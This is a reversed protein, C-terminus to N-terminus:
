VRVVIEGARFHANWPRRIKRDKERVTKSAIANAAIASHPKATTAGDSTGVNLQTVLDIL